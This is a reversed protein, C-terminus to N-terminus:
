EHHCPRLTLLALIYLHVCLTVVMVESMINLVSGEVQVVEGTKLFNRDTLTTIIVKITTEYSFRWNMIEIVSESASCGAEGENLFHQM